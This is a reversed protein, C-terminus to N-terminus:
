IKAELNQSGADDDWTFNVNSTPNDKSIQKHRVHIQEKTLIETWEKEDNSFWDTITVKVNHLKKCMDMIFVETTQQHNM